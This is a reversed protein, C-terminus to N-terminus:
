LIGGEKRVDGFIELSMRVAEENQEFIGNYISNEEFVKWRDLVKMQQARGDYNLGNFSSGGGMVAGVVNLAFDSYDLDLKNAIEVRYDEDLFWKNFSICISNNPLYNTLGLHERAYIKWHKMYRVVRKYGRADIMSADEIWKDKNPPDFHSVYDSLVNRRGGYLMSSAAWNFVDRLILIDYKNQSLGVINERNPVSDSKTLASINKNEYSYMLCHKHALRIVKIEEESWHKMKKVKVFIDEIPTGKRTGRPTSGKFPDSGFTCNNFFYVPEKYMSAIWNIIGHQGGRKLGFVRIENDNRFVSMEFM